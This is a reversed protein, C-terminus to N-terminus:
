VAHVSCLLSHFLIQLKLKTESLNSFDTFSATGKLMLYLIACQIDISCGFCESGVSGAPLNHMHKAILDIFNRFVFPCFPYQFAINWGVSHSRQLLNQV